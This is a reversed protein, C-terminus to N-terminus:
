ETVKASQFAKFKVILDEGHVIYEPEEAELNKCADCITEGIIKRCFVLVNSTGQTLSLSTLRRNEM